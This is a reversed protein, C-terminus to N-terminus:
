FEFRAAFQITRAAGASTIQGFTTSNISPVQSNANFNVNNLLNFAEMRLQIRMSETFRINKLLAANINFNRPGNVIFRGLNGTQGPEVNFFAQGSFASNSNLIGHIYGTSAAGNTGIISPNIWYIRGNAEFIGMLNRIEDYSLSSNPTQRASRAARNLTGRPDNFSIPGGSAWQVIGSLEWGGFVKDVIGGNNLLMKGKGFPLQYVGNFNFTHTQDFDARTYDWQKNNNDLYPEFLSQGSNPSNASGIANTLNKSFTYNAQFYLGKSFRRRVEIQVSHYRFGADNLMVDVAGTAPNPVFNVWPTGNPNTLTPHNNFGLQIFNFALEAPQGSTLLPLFTGTGMGNTGVVLYGAGQATAAYPITVATTSGVPTYTFNGSPRIITLPVCGPTPSGTTPTNGCFPNGASVIFNNIARNFDAAFGNSFIDIQNLDVGRVFNDSRSGVYRIELATNGGFERQYGLSMQDVSPTQLKPDVAFVTGFNATASVGSSNNRIYTFPPPVFTPTTFAPIADFGYHLNTL